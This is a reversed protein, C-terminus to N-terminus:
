IFMIRKTLLAGQALVDGIVYDNLQSGLRVRPSTLALMIDTM